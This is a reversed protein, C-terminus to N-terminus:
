KSEKVTKSMDLMISKLQGQIVTIQEYTDAYDADIPIMLPLSDIVDNWYNQFTQRDACVNAIHPTLSITKM